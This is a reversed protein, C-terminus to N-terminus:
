ELLKFLEKWCNDWGTLGSAWFALLKQRAALAGACREALSNYLTLLMEAIDDQQSSSGGALAFGTVALPWCLSGHCEPETWLDKLLFLARDRLLGRHATKWNYLEANSPPLTAGAFITTTLKFLSAFMTVERRDPLPYKETWFEPSFKAIEVYIADIRPQAEEVPLGNLLDVRLRTIAVIQM